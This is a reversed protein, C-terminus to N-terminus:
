RCYLKVAREFTVKIMNRTLRRYRKTQGAFMPNLSRFARRARVVYKVFTWSRVGDDQRVTVNRLIKTEIEHFPYNALLWSKGKERYRKVFRVASGYARRKMRRWANSMTSDKIKVKNGDFEFGLYELGNRSSSGFLRFYELGTTTRSFSSVSVKKDQITLRNGHKKITAQLFDKAEQPSNGDKKPIIIVIDDSYRRYLGQREDVWESVEKDFNILYFNAILDSIPLGQPIGFGFGNKQLLSPMKGCGTVLERFEKPSCIQRYGASKLADIKRQRREFRTGSAPKQNLELREFLREIDVVCYKTVARYVAYHDQPLPQRVLSEWTALIREHDLSEFYSKIDVVTAYADGTDSIFKFVDYAFDISSKNSKGNKPIKRYAVPVESIDLEALRKEYLPALAARYRAFIAADLRSAYRLPRVKVTHPGSGRFKTWSEEFKLLPFFPHSAVRQPDNAVQVIKKVPILRDFHIYRKIDKERPLWAVDRTSAAVSNPM